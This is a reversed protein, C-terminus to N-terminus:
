SSLGLSELSAWVDEECFGRSALYRGIRAVQAKHNMKMCEAHKRKALQLCVERERKKPYLRNLTEEIISPDIGVARMRRFLLLRGQPRYKIGMEVYEAAYHADNIAGERKLAQIIENADGSAVCKKTLWRRMEFETRARLGIYWVAKLYKKHIQENM